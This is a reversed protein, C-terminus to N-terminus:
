EISTFSPLISFINTSGRRMMSMMSALPVPKAKGEWVSKRPRSSAGAFCRAPSIASSTLAQRSRM